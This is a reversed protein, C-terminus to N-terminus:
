TGAGAFMSDVPVISVNAQPIGLPWRAIAEDEALIEPGKQIGPPYVVPTPDGSTLAKWLGAADGTVATFVLDETRMHKRIAANVEEHTIEDLMARFRGLHGDVAYFRDDIAYGLRDYTSEAFHTSYGKLFDRTSEFQEKTLGNKALSEVERLAARIAFPANENSITRIWVEFLQHSRGVGTPPMSRRGGRPFAEIYSYNGYNLGRAERIVQYLHSTSNRHEGLWSNAIWLAYFERQGRRVSVPTGFSISTGTASPNDILVAHRGHVPAPKLEAHTPREGAQLRAALASSIIDPLTPEYGGGIGLVVGNRTWHRAHFAKVDDLTLARLAAVTGMEVHAYRTTRFVREWLAAKALDEGSEFRLGNEISSIAAARLREFDEPSFAPEAAAEVLLRAFRAAQDRHARGGLITMERDVSSGYSGAMPFLARLIEDYARHKTSAEAVMSATLAALGEKGPPDDQSGAQVWLQISVVPDAPIPM